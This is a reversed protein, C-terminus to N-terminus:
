AFFSNTASISGGAPAPPRAAAGADDTDTDDDHSVLRVPPLQPAGGPAAASPSVVRAPAMRAGPLASVIRNSRTNAELQRRAEDNDDDEDDDDPVRARGAEAAPVSEDEDWDEFEVDDEDYYFDDILADPNSYISRMRTGGRPLSSTRGDVTSYLSPHRAQGAHPADDDATQQTPAESVMTDFDRRRRRRRTSRPATSAYDQGIPQPEPAQPEQLGFPLAGVGVQDTATTPFPAGGAYYVAQDYPGGPYPAAPYSAPNGWHAQYEAYATPNRAFYERWQAAYQEEQQQYEGFGPQQFPQQGPAYAYQQEAADMHPVGAPPLPSRSQAPSPSSHPLLPPTPLPKNPRPSVSSASSPARDLLGRSDAYRLNHVDEGGDGGGGRTRGFAGMAKKLPLPPPPQDDNLEYDAFKRQSRKVYVWTAFGAAIIFVIAAVVAGAVAGMNIGTSAATTQSESTSTASATTSTSTLTYTTTQSFISLFTFQNISTSTVTSISTPSSTSSAVASSSDTSSAPDSASPSASASSVTPSNSSATSSAASSSSFTQSPQLSSSSSSDTTSATASSVSSPVSSSSSPAGPDNSIGASVSSM